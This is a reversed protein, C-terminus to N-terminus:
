PQDERQHSAPMLESTFSRIFNRATTIAAQKLLDIEQNLEMIPGSVQSRSQDPRYSSPTSQSQPAQYAAPQSQGASTGHQWDVTRYAFDSAIPYSSSGQWGSSGASSGEGGVSGLAYGVAVAAGLMLWPRERLQEYLPIGQGQGLSMSRAMPQRNPAQNIM